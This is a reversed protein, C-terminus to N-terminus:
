FHWALSATWTQRVPPVRGVAAYLGALDQDLVVVKSRIGVSMHHMVRLQLGAGVQVLPTWGAAQVVPADTRKLNASVHSGGFVLDGFLRLPGYIPLYIRLGGGVDRFSRSDQFERAAGQNLGETTATGYSFEGILYFRPPFGRFKGGVGLIAGLAMGPDSTFLVGGAIEALFHTPRARRNVCPGAHCPIDQALLDRTVCPSIALM